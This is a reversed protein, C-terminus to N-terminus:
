TLRDNISVRYRQMDKQIKKYNQGKNKALQKVCTGISPKDVPAVQGDLHQTKNNILLIINLANLYDEVSHLHQERFEVLQLGRISREKKHEVINDAYCCIKSAEVNEPNHVSVGNSTLQVSYSEIVPKAVCTAFHNATSTSVTDPRRNEHISHYDDINYVHFLNKGKKSYPQKNEPLSRRGHNRKDLCDNSQRQM